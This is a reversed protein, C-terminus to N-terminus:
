LLSLLLNLHAGFVLFSFVFLCFLVVCFFGCCCCCVGVVDVVVCVLRGGGGLFGLKSLFYCKKKFIGQFSLGEQIGLSVGPREMVLPTNSNVFCLM